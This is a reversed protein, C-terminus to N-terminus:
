QGGGEGAETHLSALTARAIYQMGKCYACSTIDDEAGCEHATIERLAEVLKQNTARLAPGAQQWYPDMCADCHGDPTSGNPCRHSDHGSRVIATLREVEEGLREVEDALTKCAVRWGGVGEYVTVGEVWEGALRIAEDITM